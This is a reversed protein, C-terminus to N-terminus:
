QNILKQIEEDLDKDQKRLDEVQRELSVESKPVVAERM